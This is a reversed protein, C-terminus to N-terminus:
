FFLDLTKKEGHLSYHIRTKRGYEVKIDTANEWIDRIRRYEAIQEETYLKPNDSTLFVGKNLADFEALMRKKKKSLSINENRLFFVDPDTLYAGKNLGRRYFSTELARKTSPRESHIIKMWFKDDWDLTVDCSVRSYDTLGFGAMVPVGCGLILKDRCLTRLFEMGRFMRGSRSEGDKAFPSAGYLFDLKVLDFGWEDFVKRFTDELYNRFDEDDIDLAWFGSWNCGCKYGIGDRKLLWDKHDKFVASNEEAVFPALWLGARFGSAHIKDVMAKMGSPFKKRDPTWDGVSEEWGDDIQFLDGEKLIRKAGELDELITEESIDQYRNYWSSYGAIPRSKTKLSLASFWADYVEDESGEAIFLSLADFSGDAKLNRSDREIRLSKENTDLRFITWGPREDLSAILTYNDGRRITMYSFGHLQGRKNPYEVFSYDGYGSLNYHDLVPKPIGHLGRQRGRKDYEKSYTWTQYGNLYFKEDGKLDLKTEAEIRIIRADHLSLTVTQRGSLPLSGNEKTERGSEIYTASWDLIMYKM